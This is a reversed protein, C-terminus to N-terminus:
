DLATPLKQRSTFFIKPLRLQDRAGATRHIQCVADWPQGWKAHDARVSRRKKAWGTPSLPLVVNLARLLPRLCARQCQFEGM